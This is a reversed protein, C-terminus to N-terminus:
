APRSAASSSAWAGAPISGAVRSVSGPGTQGTPPCGNVAWGFRSGPVPASQNKPAADSPGNEGAIRIPASPGSPRISASARISAGYQARTCSKATVARWTTSGSNGSTPSRSRAIDPPGANAQSGPRPQKRPTICRSSGCPLRRQSGTSLQKANWTDLAQSSASLRSISRICLSTGASNM